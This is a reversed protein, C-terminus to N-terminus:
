PCPANKTVEEQMLITRAEGVLYLSGTICIIDERSAIKKAMDIADKIDKFVFLKTNNHFKKFKKSLNEPNESRQNKSRTIIATDIDIKMRNLMGDIDKDALIGLVLILRNYELDKLSKVLYEIGKVNHAGDLIINDQIVEMRGKIDSKIVGNYISIDSISYGMDKLCNIAALAVSLNEGQYRGLLRTKLIYDGVLFTQYDKDFSLRKYKERKIVKAGKDYSKKEIVSLAKGICGTVVPVGKKIIGAKEFAIDEIKNGLIHTHDRFVNTIVSIVPLVVNTADLRGGLGVEVIAFDVEKLQFYKLAIATEVEFVTANVQEAYPRIEQILELFETHTIYEGDVSFREERRGLDPSTYIGTRYGAEKLISGLYTCTSGKGNTGGVHIIKYSKEPNNLYKLLKEIRELGLETGFKNLSFFWDLDDLKSTRIDM